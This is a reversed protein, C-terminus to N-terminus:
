SIRLTFTERVPQGVGNAATITITFTRGRDARPPDGALVATGNSRAVFRVGAPLRGRESLRAAPFGTTRFTFANRAAARFTAHRASTFAPSQDVTLTFAQAASPSTSSAATITVPYKGGAHPGPTGALLGAPTLSVGAPLRGTETFSPAPFGHAHVAFSGATGTRFTTKAASTFSPAEVVTLTFAQSAVTQPTSDTGEITVRYVGGTGVAPDGSIFCCPNGPLVVGSPLTGLVSFSTIPPFGTATLMLSSTTGVKFTASAPSTIAGPQDVTLLFSETADPAVGNSATITFLYNGGADAAPTGALTGDPSFTVGAPLAGTESFTAAPLADATVSFTGAQGTAFTASNQQFQFIPFWANTASPTIVLAGNRNGGEYATGTVADVAMTDGGRRLTDTLTNTAGDIVWTTGQDLGAPPVTAYITDTAPDSAIGFVAQGLPIQKTLTSTAGDIVAVDHGRPDAAYVTNTVPDVAVDLPSSNGLSVTSAITNTAGDISIVAGSKETVWAVDTTEDVAVRGPFTGAATAITATIANTAGNIVAVTGAESSGADRNVVYVTDTAGDVAIGTPTVGAPEPITTTVTNTQGDIVAIGPPTDGMLREAVYVTNTVPDVALGLAQENLPITATVTGTAGNIVTVRNSQLTSVTALYITDTVPNVAVWILNPGAPILSATYGTSAAEAGTTAPLLAALVSLVAILLV